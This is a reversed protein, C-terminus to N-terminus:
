HTQPTDEGGRGPLSSPPPLCPRPACRMNQSYLTQEAAMPTAELLQGMSIIATLNTRLSLHTEALWKSDWMYPSADVQASAAAPAIPMAELIARGVGISLSPASADRENERFTVSVWTRGDTCGRCAQLTFDGFGSLSTLFRVPQGPVLTAMRLAAKEDLAGQLVDRGRGFKLAFEGNAQIVDLSEPHVLAMPLSCSLLVEHPVAPACELAAM